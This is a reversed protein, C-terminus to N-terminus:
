KNEEKVWFIFDDLDSDYATEVIGKNVLSNLINSTMRDGLSEIIEAYLQENVLYRFKKTKKNREIKALSKVIGMTENFSLVDDLESQETETLTILEELSDEETSNQNKDGYSVFVLKRTHDVFNELDKIIFWDNNMFSM